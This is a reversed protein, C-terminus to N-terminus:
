LRDLRRTAREVLWFLATLLAFLERGDEVFRELVIRGPGDGAGNPDFFGPTAMARDDRGVTPDVRSPGLPATFVTPLRLTPGM